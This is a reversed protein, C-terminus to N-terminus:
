MALFLVPKKNDANNNNNNFTHTKSFHFYTAKIWGKYDWLLMQLWQLLKKVSASNMHEPNM